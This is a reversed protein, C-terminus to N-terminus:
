YVRHAEILKRIDSVRYLVVGGVKRFSLFGDKRLDDLFDRSVGGLFQCASKTTLYEQEVKKVMASM